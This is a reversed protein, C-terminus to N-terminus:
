RFNPANENTLIYLIGDRHEVSYEVNSRRAAILQFRGELDDAPLLYEERTEKSATDLIVYHDDSTKYLHVLFREDPEHFVEEDETLDAGLTHRFIKHSRKAQDEVSYFFTRSDTMWELSYSTEPISDPLDEGSELNRVQITYDESGNLDLSYALFSHDPSIKYVGLNIYGSERKEVEVNLDLLVEEEAEMGGKKRCYINYQKGEETRSYYWYEGWKIPVNLDTQQIRGVLEDYLRKQLEETHATMRETYLNEEELYAIVEPNERDRLWHYDDVRLLNHVRSEHPLRKAIPPNLESM